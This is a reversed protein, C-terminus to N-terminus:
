AMSSHFFDGKVPIILPWPHLSSGASCSSIARIMAPFNRASCEAQYQSILAVPTSCRPKCASRCKKALLSYGFAHLHLYDGFRRPMGAYLDSVVAANVEEFSFGCILCSALLFCTLDNYLCFTFQQVARIIRAKFTTYDSYAIRRQIAQYTRAPPRSLHGQALNSFLSM